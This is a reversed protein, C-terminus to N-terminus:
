SIDELTKRIKSAKSEFFEGLQTNAYKIQSAKAIFNKYQYELIALGEGEKTIATASGVRCYQKNM